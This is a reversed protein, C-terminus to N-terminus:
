ALKLRYSAEDQAEPSAYSVVRFFLPLAAFVCRALINLRRSACFVARCRLEAALALSVSTARDGVLAVLCQFLQCGLLCSRKRSGSKRDSNPTLRVHRKAARIDAKSGFRVAFTRKDGPM